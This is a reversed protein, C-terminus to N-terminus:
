QKIFDLQVQCQEAYFRGRQRKRDLKRKVWVRTGTFAEAQPTVKVERLRNDWIITCKFYIFLKGPCSYLKAMVDFVSSDHILTIWTSEGSM